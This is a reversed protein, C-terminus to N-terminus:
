FPLSKTGMPHIDSRRQNCETVNDAIDQEILYDPNVNHNFPGDDGPMKVHGVHMGETLPGNFILYSVRHAWWSRGNWWFQGYGKPSLKGTWLWRGQKDIKVKAMFRAIVTSDPREDASHSRNLKM